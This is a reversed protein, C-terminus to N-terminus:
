VTNDLDVQVGVHLPCVEGTDPVEDLRLLVVKLGLDAVGIAIVLRVLLVVVRTDPDTLALLGHGLTDLSTKLVEKGCALSLNPYSRLVFHILLNL